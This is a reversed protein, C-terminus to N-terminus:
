IEYTIDICANLLNLQQQFTIGVPLRGEEQLTEQFIQMILM